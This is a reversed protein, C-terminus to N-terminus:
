SITGIPISGFRSFVASSRCSPAAPQRIFEGLADCGLVQTLKRGLQLM